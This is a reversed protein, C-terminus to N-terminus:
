RFLTLARLPASTATAHSILPACRATWRPPCSLLAARSSPSERSEAQSLFLSSFSLAHTSLSVRLTLSLSSSSSSSSSSCSCSSSSSSSSSSSLLPFQSKHEKFTVFCFGSTTNWVKVQSVSLRLFPSLCRAFALLLSLSFVVSLFLSYCCFSLFLAGQRRRRRHRHATRRAFLVAREHRLFPGSEHSCVCLRHALCISVCVCVCV